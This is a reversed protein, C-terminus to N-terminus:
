DLKGLVSYVLGVLSILALRVLKSDQLELIVELGQLVELSYILQGKLKHALCQVPKIRQKPALCNNLSSVLCLNSGSHQHKSNSNVLSLPRSHNSGSPSSIGSDLQSKVSYELSFEVLVKALALGLKLLNHELYVELLRNNSFSLQSLVSSNLSNNNLGL